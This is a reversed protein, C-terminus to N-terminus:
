PNAGRVTDLVLDETLPQPLVVPERAGPAYYLYLPVGPSGHEALAAAIVPDRNTWDAKLYVVNEDRFATAVAQRDIAAAEYVKCTICWAATFTVFVGRGEGRLEAVRAPSWDEHALVAPTQQGTLPKWAVFGTVLLAVAGVAFWIRGWRAVFIMFALAAGLALLALVGNAGTQATLVWALWAAAGFMPFALVNRVREMWAGPKPILNRLGPAFHVLTLPLAFGLALAFFILLTIEPPQTLAAALAGAMFPATCPTAAIVALAGTFFAGADGGRAALGSGAGELGSVSFLGALNLGIVFFLLSLAATVWPTQLQFGWGVAEGAGRLAILLGALAMFSVIVGAFYLAGQRPAEKAHAGGAFALAKVSLVPLVCPMVNLILGGLFAFLLASFLAALDMPPAEPRADAGTDPLPAGPTAIIEFARRARGEGLVLLGDLPETGLNRDAGAELPITVGRPGVRVRQPASPNVVDPNFAFFYAQRAGAQDPLTVSLRAPAGESIRAVIAENRQPLAARAAAIRPGWVPDDSGQAAVPLTLSVQGGEFVCIDSCAVWTLDGALLVSQGPRASAPATIEVPLLVENSYGYNVLDAFPIADPTPWLIDGATFGQPLRWTIETPEGAAGPNRWYTHWHERITQQIVVTFTEGPAVAARASRLTVQANPVTPTQAVAPTAALFFLLALLSRFM